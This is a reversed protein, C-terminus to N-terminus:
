DGSSGSRGAKRAQLTQLEALAAENGAAAAARTEAITPFSVILLMTECVPCRVDFLDSFHEENGGGTGKWECGGCTLPASADYEWFGVHRAM